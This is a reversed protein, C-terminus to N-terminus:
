TLALGITGILFSSVSLFHSPVPFLRSRVLQLSLGLFADLGASVKGLVEVKLVTLLHIKTTQAAASNLRGTTSPQPLELISSWYGLM